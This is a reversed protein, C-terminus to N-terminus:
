SFSEPSPAGLESFGDFIEEVSREPSVFARFWLVFGEKGDLTVLDFGPCLFFLIIL